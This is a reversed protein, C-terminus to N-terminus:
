GCIGCPRCHDSVNAQVHTSPQFGARRNSFPFISICVNSSWQDICVQTPIGPQVDIRVGIHPQGARASSHENQSHVPGPGHSGMSEAAPPLPIQRLGKSDCSSQTFCGTRAQFTGGVELSPRGNDSRWSTEVSESSRLSACDPQMLERASALGPEMPQRLSAFGPEMSQRVSAVGPEIPTLFVSPAKTVLPGGNLSRSRATLAQELEASDKAILGIVLDEFALLGELIRDSARGGQQLSARCRRLVVEVIDGIKEAGLGSLRSKLDCLDTKSSAETAIKMALQYHWNGADTFVHEHTDLWASREQKGGVWTNEDKFLGYEPKNRILCSPLSIMGLNSEQKWFPQLGNEKQLYLDEAWHLFGAKVCHEALPRLNVAGAPYIPTSQYVSNSSAVGPLDGRTAVPAYSIPRDYPLTRGYKALVGTAYKWVHEPELQRGATVACLILWAEAHLAQPPERFWVTMTDPAPPSPMHDQRTLEFEICPCGHYMGTSRHFVQIRGQMLPNQYGSQNALAEVWVAGLVGELGCLAEIFEQVAFGCDARLEVFGAM